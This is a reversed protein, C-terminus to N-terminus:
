LRLLSQGGALRGETYFRLQYLGSHWAAVPQTHTSGAPIALQSLVTRGLMDTAWVSIDHESQNHIHVSETAPNPYVRVNAILVGPDGVPTILYQDATDCDSGEVWCGNIDLVMLGADARTTDGPEGDKTISIAIKQYPSIKISEPWFIFNQPLNERYHIFREWNVTGTPSLSILHTSFQEPENLVADVLTYAAVIPNGFPDIDFGTIEAYYRNTHFINEAIIQGSTDFVVAALKIADLGSIFTDLDMLVMYNGNNLERVFPLSRNVVAYFDKIWITQGQADLKYLGAYPTSSTYSYCRGTALLEGTQLEILNGLQALRYTDDINRHWILNGASDTKIVTIDPQPEGPVVHGDGKIILDGNDLEIISRAYNSTENFYRTWLSDGSPNIKMLFIHPDNGFYRDGAIAYNGDNTQIICNRAGQRFHPYQKKWLLQGNLDFRLLGMITGGSDPGFAVAVTYGTSDAVLDWGRDNVSVGGDETVFFNPQANLPLGFLLLLWISQKM